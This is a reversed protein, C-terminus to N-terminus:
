ILLARHTLYLPPSSTPAPTDARHSLGAPALGILVATSPAHVIVLPAGSVSLSRLAECSAAHMGDSAHDSAPAEHGHGNAAPTAHVHGPLVCIHAVIAALALAVLLVRSVSRERNM